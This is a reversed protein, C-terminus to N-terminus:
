GVPQLETVIAPVYAAIPFTEDSGELDVSGTFIYVPQLYQAEGLAGSSAYAVTVEDYTAAGTIESAQPFQEIPLTVDLYSQRAEIVSYADDVGRLRYTEFETITAWSVRSELITGAPGVTVTIGPTSSLLPTPAAPLFEVILRAPEEIRAVISGDGIDAPMLGSIRLWDRAFAIAADDDPLGEDPAEVASVFQLFGPTTYITGEGEVTYTGEGQESIEGDVGLVEAVEGVRDQDYSIPEVRFIPVELPISEADGQWASELEFTYSQSNMTPLDIIPLPSALESDPGAGPTGEQGFGVMQSSGFMSLLLVSTILTRPFSTCRTM